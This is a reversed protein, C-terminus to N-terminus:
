VSTYSLDCLVHLLVMQEVRLHSMKVTCNIVIRIFGTGNSNLPLSLYMISINYNFPKSSKKRHIESNACDSQLTRVDM